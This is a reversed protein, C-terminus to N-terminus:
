FNAPPWEEGFLALHGKQYSEFFQKQSCPALKSHLEERLDDDMMEELAHYQDNTYYEYDSRDM